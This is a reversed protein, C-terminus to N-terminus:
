PAQIPVLASGAIMWKGNQKVFFRVGRYEGSYDRGKYVRGRVTTHDTAIAFNGYVARLKFDSPFPGKTPAPGRKAVRGLLQAKKMVGPPWPSVELFQDTWTQRLFDANANRASALWEQEIQWLQKELNVNTARKNNSGQAVALTSVAMVAALAAMHQIRRM